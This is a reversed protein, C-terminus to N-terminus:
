HVALYPTYVSIVANGDRREWGGIDHLATQLAEFIPRKIVNEVGM